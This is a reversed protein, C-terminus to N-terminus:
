NTTSDFTYFGNLRFYEIHLKSLLLPMIIVSGMRLLIKPSEGFFRDISLHFVSDSKIRIRLCKLLNMHNQGSEVSVTDRM